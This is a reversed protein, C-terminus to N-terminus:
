LVFKVKRDSQIAAFLEEKEGKQVSVIGNEYFRFFEQGKHLAPVIFGVGLLAVLFGGGIGLLIFVVLVQFVIM